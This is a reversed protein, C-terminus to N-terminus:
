NVKLSAPETQWFRAADTNSLILAFLESDFICLVRLTSSSEVDETFFETNKLSKSTLKLM